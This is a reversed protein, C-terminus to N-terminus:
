HMVSKLLNDPRCRTVSPAEFAYEESIHLAIVKSITSQVRVIHVWLLLDTLPRGFTMRKRGTNQIGKVTTNVPHTRFSM